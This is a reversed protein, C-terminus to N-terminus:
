NCPASNSDLELIASLHSLIPFDIIEDPKTVMVYNDPNKSMTMNALKLRQDM